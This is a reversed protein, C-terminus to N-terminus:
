DLSMASNLVLFTELPKFLKPLENPEKRKKTSIVLPGKKQVYRRGRAKGKGARLHRSDKVREIDSYAGVAKLLKVADKTKAIHDVEVDAIVLPVEPLKEIHHGRAMVLPAVSTAALAACTAYRRQGKSIRVHWRRWIHNQGFMRGGRCMNGFAAQGSRHTGGGPVRPIRSVARGTGWSQASTQAGAVRSVAYPQRHNKAMKTHISVIV